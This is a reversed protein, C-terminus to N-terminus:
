NQIERRLADEVNAYVREIETLLTEAQEPQEAKAERELRQCLDGLERAGLNNSSGKLAHAAAALAFWNREHLASDMKGLRSRADNLYLEVLGALPDPDCESELSRLSDIVKRDLVGPETGRAGAEPAHRSVLASDARELVQKLDSLDIPKTLYDNMGAELCRERDGQLTNATLAIIYVPSHCRQDPSTEAERIRRTVEYGDMEPMQCDMLIIDYPNRQMANLVGTGNAVADAVYGLKKLQSLAVRQNVLNDEALLIRYRKLATQRPPSAKESPAVLVTPEEHANEGRGTLASLLCDQLLSQRVPKILREIIGAARMEEANIRGRYSTLALLRVPATTAASHIRLAFNLGDGDAMELDLIVLAFPLGEQRAEDLRALAEAHGAAGVGDLNWHSLQDLLIQRCTPSDDVVLVRKGALEHLNRSVAVPDPPSPQIDFPLTFWFTSGQNVQSEVGIEGGMLEVLQKSITLGLGTGGYKRTTSGDAQTFADFIQALSGGEIGIGTDMVAVRIVAAAETRHPAEVRVIVEGNATFKVANSLLNTLIQRLRGPDGRLHRPAEQDIWCALELGKDQAIDGLMKATSEVTDRLDFDIRELAIKGAEIKSYDLIENIVALLTATSNSITEVYETQERTLGTDLLLGTMGTIANMPTRIEHSMNALFQSKVRASELAADRAKELEKEAQKLQTVDRSIGIIGTVAGNQNYIPVKTVSAWMDQGDTDHQKELKNILPQGTLIIRQEDNYYEQALEVPHFDFDTKGVVGKPEALGLRRAMSSSCRLFRSHVDKFYIRDPITDLLARLLDREYALAEEIKKRHTVDWFIGQIGVVQGAADYLPTKIVHVFLKEGHSTQHAEVTDLNERTAMVRLDDRHYKGALETPYLDFDSKGLLDLLTRNISQCFKQNAFTFHGQPDKRIINQPLSEVLTQYFSESDLLRQETQQHVEVARALEALHRRLELQTMVQRALIRIAETQQARLRNPKRDLVCLTGLNFGDPTTLPMGAYFRVHPESQVFPNDRFREDLHTDEVVLIEEHLITHGCFSFDRRTEAVEWGIRSKFWQRDRDLLSILAMPTGCVSSVLGTLEDFALEPATDLINYRALAALRETENSPHSAINV